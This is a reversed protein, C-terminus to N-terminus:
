LLRLIETLCQDVVASSQSDADVISIYSINGSKVKGLYTDIELAELKQKRDLVAGPSALLALAVNPKPLTKVFTKLLWEATNLRFRHPELWVDCAYRDSIVLRNRALQPLVYRVYGTWFTLWHHVLFALSAVPSRLQGKSLDDPSSSEFGALSVSRATPKWHFFLTEKAGLYEELRSVVQQIVTSRGEGDFGTFAIFVGPPGVIRSIGRRLYAFVRGIVHWPRIMGRLVITRRFRRHLAEFRPWDSASAAQFLDDAVSGLLHPCFASALAESDLSGKSAEWQRRHKERVIGHYVLRTALNLYVEDALAPKFVLGSWIRRSLIAEPDAYAFFHWEVQEFLDIHIIAKDIASILFVSLCSFPVCKWVRWGYEPAQQRFMEVVAQTHGREILLDVDNGIDDPLNEYNRLYVVHHGASELRSLLAVVFPGNELVPSVKEGVQPDLTVPMDGNMNRQFPQASDGALEDPM